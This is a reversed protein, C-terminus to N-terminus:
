CIEQAVLGALEIFQRPVASANALTYKPALMWQRQSNFANRIPVSGPNAHAPLKSRLVDIHQVSLELTASRSRSQVQFLYGKHVDFANAKKVLTLGLSDRRQVTRQIYSLPHRAFSLRWSYACFLTGNVPPFSCSRNM